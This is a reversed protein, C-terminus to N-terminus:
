YETCIVKRGHILITLEKEKLEKGTNEQYFAYLKTFDKPDFLINTPGQDFQPKKGSLLMQLMEESSAANTYGDRRIYVQPMGQYKLMLPKRDSEGITIKLLYREKNKIAYPIIETTILPSIDFHDKIEHYFYLREKDAEESEFGILQNTGDEVGIFLVGGCANAFGDITKLWGITHDRDLRAKCEYNKNELRYNPEIDKLEM